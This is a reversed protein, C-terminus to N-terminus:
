WDLEPQTKTQFHRCIAFMMAIEKTAKDKSMKGEMVLRPYVRQRYTVERKACEALDEFSFYGEREASM